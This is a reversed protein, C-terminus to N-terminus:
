KKCPYEVTSVGFVLTVAIRQVAARDGLFIAGIAVVVELQVVL